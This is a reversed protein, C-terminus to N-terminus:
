ILLDLNKLPQAQKRLDTEDRVYHFRLGCVCTGNRDRDNNRADVLWIWDVSLDLDVTWLGCGALWALRQVQQEASGVEMM